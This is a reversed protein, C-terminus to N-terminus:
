NEGAFWVDESVGVEYAAEMGKVVEWYERPDVPNVSIKEFHSCHLRSHVALCGDVKECPYAGFM